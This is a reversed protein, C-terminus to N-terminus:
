MSYSCCKTSPGDFYCREGDFSSRCYNRGNPDYCEQGFLSSALGIQPLTIGGVKKANGNFSINVNLFLVLTLALTGLVKLATRSKKSAITM